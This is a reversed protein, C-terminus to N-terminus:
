LNRTFYQTVSAGRKTPKVETHDLTFRGCCDWDNACHSCRCGPEALWGDDTLTDRLLTRSARSHLNRADQRTLGYFSTVIMANGNDAFTHFRSDLVKYNMTM